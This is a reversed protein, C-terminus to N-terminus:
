RKSARWGAIEAEKKSCFWREGKSVDIVTRNYYAGRPEHYIKIGKSSINGKILCNSKDFNNNTNVNTNKKSKRWRWPEVFESSWLGIKNLKASEEEGVYDSSYARYALAWGSKVLVRAVDVGDVFCIAVVRKYRDISKNKCDVNKGAILKVLEGTAVLGCPWTKNNKKCMQNKEPADIGHMRYTVNNIKITDGDVVSQSFAPSIYFVIFFLFNFIILLRHIM